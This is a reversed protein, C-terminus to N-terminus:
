RYAEVQMWGFNVGSFAWTSLYFSLTLLARLFSPVPSPPLVLSPPSLLSSPSLFRM